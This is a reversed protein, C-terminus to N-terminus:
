LQTLQQRVLMERDIARLDHGPGRHLAELRLVARAIWGTRAAIALAIEVALLGAVGRMGRARIRLRPEIAFSTALFGFEAEHPWANISFRVPSTTAAITVWAVPVASRSAASAIITCWEGPARRM